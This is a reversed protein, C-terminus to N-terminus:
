AAFSVRRRPLDRAPCREIRGYAKVVLLSWGQMWAETTRGALARLPSYDPPLGSCCSAQRTLSHMAATTRIVSLREIPAASGIFAEVLLKGRWDDVGVVVAPPRGVKTGCKVGLNVVCVGPALHCRSSATLPGWAPRSGGFTTDWDEVDAVCARGRAFMGM